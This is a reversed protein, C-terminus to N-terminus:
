ASYENKEKLSVVSKIICKNTLNQSLLEGFSGLFVKIIDASLCIHRQFAASSLYNCQLCWM